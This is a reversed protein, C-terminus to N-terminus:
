GFQIRTSTGDVIGFPLTTILQIRHHPADILEVVTTVKWRRGTAYSHAYVTQGPHAPGAPFIADTQADWWLAYSSPRALLAWVQELPAAARAIPCVNVAM